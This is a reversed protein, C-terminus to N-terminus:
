VRDLPWQFFPVPLLEPAFDPRREPGFLLKTLEGASLDLTQRRHRLHWREGRREVEFPLGLARLLAPADLVALMGLYHLASPIGLDQLLAPLGDPTDPTVVSLEYQGQQSGMRETTFPPLREVEPFLRRVLAAVDSPAGAHERVTSGSLAAYAVVAGGRRAVFVRGAKREVLLAFREPSRVSGGAAGRTAADYLAAMEPACPPWDESVDLDPAAPLSTLNARDFTFQRQRGAREWGLKRYYNSIGTSLLGLQVGQTDMQRWSDVLTATGLGLRRYDPHTAVANIGGVEV